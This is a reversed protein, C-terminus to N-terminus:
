NRNTAMTTRITLFVTPSRVRVSPHECVLASNLATPHVTITRTGSVDCRIPLIVDGHDDRQPTGLAIGGVSQIFQWDRSSRVASLSITDCGAVAVLLAIAALFDFRFKM